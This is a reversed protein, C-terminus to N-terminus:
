VQISCQRSQLKLETTLHFQLVIALCRYILIIHCIRDMKLCGRMNYGMKRDNIFILAMISKYDTKYRIYRYSDRSM